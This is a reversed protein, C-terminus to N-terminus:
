SMTTFTIALSSRLPVGAEGVPVLIPGCGLTHAFPQQTGKEVLHM